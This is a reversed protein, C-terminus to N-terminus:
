NMLQNDKLIYLCHKMEGSIINSYRILLVIFAMCTEQADANAFWVLIEMNLNSIYENCYDFAKFDLAM